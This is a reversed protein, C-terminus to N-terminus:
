KKPYNRGTSHKNRMSDKSTGNLKATNPITMNRFVTSKRGAQHASKKNCGKIMEIPRTALERLLWLIGTM